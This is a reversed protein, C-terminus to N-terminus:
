SLSRIVQTVETIKEQLLFKTKAEIIVRLLPETNSARVLLWWDSFGLKLGDIRSAFADSYKERVKEIKENPNDVRFNIEGSQFYKQFPKILESIPKGSRKMEKLVEFLVFYPSECYFGQRHYFHGSYEGGFLIDDQRMKAKIFSHGIRSAVPTGGWSLITEAVINSCRVDYLIKAHANDKNRLLISAMLALIMDSPVPKGKEDIFIIRDGDGDFAVGLNAKNKIVTQELDRLNEPKSPDPEHNPFTGDLHNFIHITKIGAFMEPVVVGSVSNATDVIVKFNFRELARNSKVYDSLVDKDTVSGPKAPKYFDNKLVLEKIENLGSEGSVPIANARVFKLGNYQAPNHSATIVIGGDYGYEGVVFYLVPTTTLGIEVVDGGQDLIGRKLENFLLASSPRNDLALVIKPNPKRLFLVFARGIKYAAEEDLEEPYVGRVDYAKFISEEM